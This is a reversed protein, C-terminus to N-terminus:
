SCASPYLFDFQCPTMTNLTQTGSSSATCEAMTPTGDGGKVKWRRREQGHKYKNRLGMRENRELNSRNLERRRRERLKGSWNM